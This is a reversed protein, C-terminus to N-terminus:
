ALIEELNRVQNKKTAAVIVKDGAQIKSNGSPIILRGERIIGAVLVGKKLRFQKEKFQMGLKSFGEGAVFEMVEAKGDAINYFKGIDNKADGMEYYRIFRLMKLVSLETSSVSIDMNVKHLLKVHGPKDVRTIISPVNQSWAFMSIVLNTEDNDTLSVLVDKKGIHEEELVETIDGESYSVKIKPYKEMLERCRNLNNELITISKKDKILMDTLYECTIGGGVITINKSVDVLIGLKDLINQIDAKAAVIGVQDGTEIMFTGDPVYLKEDRIVTCVLMDLNLSQKIEILTKGCIPSYELVSLNIMQVEDGFYGEMKVFGPLGINRYIEEAIDQKPKVFYDINYEKKLSDAEHVFDPLLLRAATRRTGLTKAQMCSLLNIEDIHTLAVLADATDAGAKMLTEKSAGSGVIGNVNYKDTIEDVLKKDTDVVTIDYNEHSVARVLYCGARGLGVIIIKM